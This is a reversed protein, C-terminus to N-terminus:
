HGCAQGQQKFQIHNVPLLSPRYSFLCENASIISEFNNAKDTIASNSEHAVPSNVKGLLM